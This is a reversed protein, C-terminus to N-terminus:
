ALSSAILFYYTYKANAFSLLVSSWFSCFLTFVIAEFVIIRTNLRLLDLKSYRGLQKTISNEGHTSASHAFWQTPRLILSARKPASMDSQHSNRRDKSDIFAPKDDVALHSATDHMHMTSVQHMGATSPFDVSVPATERGERSLEQAHAVKVARDLKNLTSLQM